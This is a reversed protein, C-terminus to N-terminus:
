CGSRRPRWAPDSDAFIPMAGRLAHRRLQCLGVLLLALVPATRAVFRLGAITDRIAGASTERRRQPVDMMLLGAIV